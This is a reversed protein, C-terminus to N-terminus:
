PDIWRCRWGIVMVQVSTIVTGIAGNLYYYFTTSSPTELVASDVNGTYAEVSGLRSGASTNRIELKVNDAPDKIM